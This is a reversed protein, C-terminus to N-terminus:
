QLTPQFRSFPFCDTKLFRTSINTNLETNTRAVQVIGDAMLALFNWNNRYNANVPQDSQNVCVTIISALRQIDHYTPWPNVPVQAGHSIPRNQSRWCITNPEVVKRRRWILLLRFFLTFIFLLIFRSDILWSLPVRFFLPISQQSQKALNTLPNSMKHGHFNTLLLSASM